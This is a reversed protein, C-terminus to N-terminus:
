SIRHPIWKFKLIVMWIETKHFINRYNAFFNSFGYRKNTVRFHLSVGSHFATKKRTTVTKGHSQNFYTYITLIKGYQKYTLLKFPRPKFNSHPFKSKLQLPVRAYILGSCHGWNKASSVGVILMHFDSPFVPVLTHQRCKACLDATAVSKHMLIIWKRKNMFNLPTGFPLFPLIM